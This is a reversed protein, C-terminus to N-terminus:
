LTVQALRRAKAALAPDRRVIIENINVKRAVGIWPHICPLHGEEYHEM